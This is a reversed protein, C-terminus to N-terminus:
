LVEDMIKDLGQLDENNEIPKIPQNLAKLSEFEAGLEKITMELKSSNDKLKELEAMLNKFPENMTEEGKQVKTNLHDLKAEVSQLRRELHSLLKWIMYISLPVLITLQFLPLKLSDM